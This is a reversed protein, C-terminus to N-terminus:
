RLLGPMVSVRPRVEDSSSYGALGLWGGAKPNAVDDSLPTWAPAVSVRDAGPEDHPQPAVAM